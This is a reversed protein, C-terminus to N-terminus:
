QCHRAKVPDNNYLTYILSTMFAQFPEVVPLAKGEAAEILVGEQSKMPYADPFAIKNLRRIHPAFAHMWPNQSATQLWRM